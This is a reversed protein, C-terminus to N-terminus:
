EGFKDKYVNGYFEEGETRTGVSLGKLEKIIDRRNDELFARDSDTLPQDDTRRAEPEDFFLFPELGVKWCHRLITEM